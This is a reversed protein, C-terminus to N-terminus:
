IGTVCRRYLAIAREAQDSINLQSEVHKRGRAGIEAWDKPNRALHGIREGMGRVDGEDVLYGTRGDLVVEPLGNHRTGVIPLGSASAEILAIPHGEQDGNDATVSHQVYLHAERMERSVMAHPLAGLLHVKERLDLRSIESELAMRLPGEGIMHLVLDLNKPIRDLAERFARVLLIPGKKEVLRGVYLCRVTKGDWRRAPDSYAFDDLRIGNHLLHVREDPFGLERLKACVHNSVGIVSTHSDILYRRYLESWAAERPLMSYDYGHFTVILPIGLRQAVPAILVGAPGFQAHILDPSLQRTLLELRFRLVRWRPELTTGIGVMSLGRLWLYAPNWRSVSDVTRVKPFPREEENQRSSTLIYNDLGSVELQRVFDYILTESLASFRECFHVVRMGGGRRSRVPRGRPYAPRAPMDPRAKRPGPLTRWGRLAANAVFQPLVLTLIIKLSIRVCDRRPPLQKPAIRALKYAFRCAALVRQRSLPEQLARNFLYHYLRALAGVKLTAEAPSLGACAREIVRLCGEEHARLRFSKSRLDLRYFVHVVPVCVFPCIAAVRLYFDWDEATRLTPEFGGVADFATRRILAGSGSAVFNGRLLLDRFVWGEARIAVDGVPLRDGRDDVYATWSFALGADPHAQLAAVQCALKDPAWLDDADLFALLEGRAAAAGRNRAASVGANSQALVRVRPDDATTAVAMTDDTSGDDVVVIEFSTFTQALVSDLTKRLTSAANYAPIIVSVIPTADAPM